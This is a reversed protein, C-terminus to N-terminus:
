LFNWYKSQGIQMEYLEVNLLCALPVPQLVLKKKKKVNHLTREGMFVAQWYHKWSTLVHLYVSVTLFSIM